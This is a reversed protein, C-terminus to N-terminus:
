FNKNEIISFHIIIKLINKFINIYKTVCIM